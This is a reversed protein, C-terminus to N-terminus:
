PASSPAEGTGAPPGEGPPGEGVDLRLGGRRALREISALMADIDLGARLAAEVVMLPLAADDRLSVTVGYGTGDFQCAAVFSMGREECRRSIAALLPAIEEDYFGEDRAAAAADGRGRGDKSTGDKSTGDM